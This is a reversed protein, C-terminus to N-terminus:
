SSPLGVLAKGQCTQSAAAYALSQVLLQPTSYGQCVDGDRVDVSIHCRCLHSLHLHIGPCCCVRVECSGEDTYNGAVHAVRVRLHARMAEEFGFPTEVVLKCSPDAKLALDMSDSSLACTGDPGDKDRVVLKFRSPQGPRSM